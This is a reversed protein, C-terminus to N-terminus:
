SWAHLSATPKLFWAANLIQTRKPNNKDAERPKSNVRYSHPSSKKKEKREKGSGQSEDRLRTNAPAPVKPFDTIQRDTIHRVWRYFSPLGRGAGEVVAENETPFVVEPQKSKSYIGSEVSAGSEWKRKELQRDQGSRVRGARHQCGGGEGGM